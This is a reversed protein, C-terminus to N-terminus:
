ELLGILKQYGKDKAYDVAIKGSKDTVTKDAGHKLLLAVMETQDYMSAFILPTYGLNNQANIQAGHEILYKAIPLNGKFSVGILATNGMADVDDVPAKQAILIKVIAEKDFYAAFILPTFGRTDKVKILGSTKDLQAKLQELSGSQITNFFLASDNM